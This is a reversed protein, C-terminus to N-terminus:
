AIAIVSFGSSKIKPTVFQGLLKRGYEVRQRLPLAVMSALAIEQGDLPHVVAAVKNFVFDKEHGRTREPFADQIKEHLTGVDAVCLM